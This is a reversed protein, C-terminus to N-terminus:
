AMRSQAEVCALSAEVMTRVSDSALTYSFDNGARRARVLKAGRLIRLQHSLASPSMQIGESLEEMGAEGRLLVRLIHIRSACGLLKFYDALRAELEDPGSVQITEEAM